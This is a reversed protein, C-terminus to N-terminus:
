YEVRQIEWKYIKEEDEFYIDDELGIPYTKLLPLKRIIESEKQKGDLKKILYDIFNDEINIGNEKIKKIIKETSTKKGNSLIALCVNELWDIYKDKEEMESRFKM